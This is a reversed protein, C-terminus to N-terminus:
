KRILISKWERPEARIFRFFLSDCPLAFSKWHEMKWRAFFSEGGTERGSCPRSTDHKGEGNSKGSKLSRYDVSCLILEGRRLSFFLFSSFLITEVRTSFKKWFTGYTFIFLKQAFIYGQEAPNRECGDPVQTRLSLCKTSHFFADIKGM